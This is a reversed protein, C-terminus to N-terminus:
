IQLVDAGGVHGPVGFEGIEAHGGPVVLVREQDPLHQAGVGADELRDAAAIELVGEQGEVVAAVRAGARVRVDEAEPTCVDVPGTRVVVGAGEGRAGLDRGRGPDPLVTAANGAVEVGIAVAGLVEEAGTFVRKGVPQLGGLGVQLDGPGGVINFREVDDAVVGVDEVAHAVALHCRRLGAHPGEGGDARVGLTRGDVGPDVRHGRS